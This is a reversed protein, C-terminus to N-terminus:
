ESPRGYVVASTNTCCARLRGFRDVAGGPTSAVVLRVVKTPYADAAAFVSAVSVAFVLLLAPLIALAKFLRSEANKM